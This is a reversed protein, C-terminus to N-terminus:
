ADDLSMIKSTMRVPSIGNGHDISVTIQDKTRYTPYKGDTGRTIRVIVGKRLRANWDGHTFYVVRDGVHIPSGCADRAFEIDRRALNIM